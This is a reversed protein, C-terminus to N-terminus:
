VVCSLLSYHTWQLQSVHQTNRNLGNIMSFSSVSSCSSRHQDLDWHKPAWETTVSQLLTETCWNNPKVAVAIIQFEDFLFHNTTETAQARCSSKDSLSVVQSWFSWIIGFVSLFFITNFAAYLRASSSGTKDGGTGLKEVCREAAPLKETLRESYSGHFRTPEM